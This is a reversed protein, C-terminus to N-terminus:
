SVSATTWRKKTVNNQDKREFLAFRFNPESVHKLFSIRLGLFSFKNGLAESFKFKV